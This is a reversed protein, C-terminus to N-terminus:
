IKGLLARNMAAMLEAKDNHDHRHNGARQKKTAPKRAPTLYV